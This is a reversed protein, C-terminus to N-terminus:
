HVDTVVPVGIERKVKALVALAEDMGLGAFSKGSSRNAKRYSAKFVFPLARAACLDRMREAIALCMAESEVVCPGSLILLREGGATADGIAFSRM